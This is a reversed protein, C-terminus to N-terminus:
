DIRVTPWGYSVEKLEFADWTFMKETNLEGGLATCFDRAPRNEALVWVLLNTAGAQALTAGVKKVLRTAVGSRQISPMVYVGTLEADFGYQSDALTIGSAFGLIVGDVEVVFTCAADSAAELVKTWLATSDALSMAQLYSDPILGKFAGRWSDIRVGAIAPADEPTARRIVANRLEASM